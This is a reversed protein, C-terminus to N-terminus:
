DKCYIVLSDHRRESFIFTIYLIFTVVPLAVAKQDGAAWIAILEASKYM